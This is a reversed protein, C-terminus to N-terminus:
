MFGGGDYYKPQWGLFRTEEVFGAEDAMEFATELDAQENILTTARESISAGGANRRDIANMVCVPTIALREMTNTCSHINLGALETSIETKFKEFVESNKHLRVQKELLVAIVNSRCVAHGDPATPYKVSFVKEFRAYKNHFHVIIPGGIATCVVVVSLVFLLVLKLEKLSNNQNKMKFRWKRFTGLFM